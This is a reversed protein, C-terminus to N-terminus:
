QNQFEKLTQVKENQIVVIFSNRYRLKLIKLADQAEELTNYKGIFYKHFNNIQKEFYFQEGQLFKSDKSLPKSFAGVQVTYYIRQSDLDSKATNAMKAPVQIKSNLVPLDTSKFIINRKRAELLIELQKKEAPQLNLDFVLQEAYYGKPISNSYITFVANGPRVLPFTFKGEKDTAIRYTETTTKLEVIINDPIVPQNATFNLENSNIKLQGYVTAGRTIRFNLATTEDEIVDLQIPVPIGPLENIELKSRDISVLHKGPPLSKLEFDGNSDTIASKNLTQILIGKVGEDNENTIRGAISGSKLVRKLPIGFNYSYTLAMTFEPDNVVQKFITYFSRLSLTHKKLFSYDLNLQMLNRNKYYDDIDYANQIYLNARFNKSIRSTVSLGATLNRQDGSVFENINSWSGFTRISHSSNIRYYLNATGRYSKQKNNETLLYNTTEGIEAALDYNLRKFNQNFQLNFSSTEYHFKGLSFRDKKEYERWFFKLNARTAVKYNISSQVSRSYPATVFFTDLQANLFDEKMYLGINLKPTIRASLNGSYFTSNKYYGPYNKGAYYYSGSLFFIYFQSSLNTRFADSSEMKEIGWSYELELSTKKFPSLESSISTLNVPEEEISYKKSIYYLRINNKEKFSFGTYVAMENEIEEYFRPKVYMFGFDLGNNLIIRNETGRGFRSNETLPTLSFTKDGAFIEVNKNLYSIYYQDHLGLYSLDSNNPGRALFELHHKGETDLAGSGELQFQYATEFNNQRNTTLFTSSLKVPFRFFQDKKANKSPFVLVTNYLSEVLRDAIKARLTFSENNSEDIEASTTKIISVQASEGPNLKLEPSGVIDCNNTEFFVKKETNGLNQVLYTATIDEGANVYEQKKILQLSINEVEQVQVNFTDTSFLRNTQFESAKAKVQFKGVLNSSVIQLTVVSLKKEGPSIKLMGPSNIIKWNEPVEFNALVRITDESTNSIFYTINLVKGPLATAENKTFFLKAKETPQAFSFLSIGFIILFILFCKQFMKSKWHFIQELFM